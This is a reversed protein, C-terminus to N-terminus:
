FLIINTMNTLSVGFVMSLNDLHFWHDGGDKTKWLGGFQNAVIIHDTNRPNVSISQVRGGDLPIGGFSPLLYPPSESVALVWRDSM